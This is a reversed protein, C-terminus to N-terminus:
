VSGSMKEIFEASGIPLCKASNERILKFAQETAADELLERYAHMREDAGDGLATYLEHAQILDNREGLANARCSSWIYDIPSGVMGARVPNLDIYRYCELCYRESDVVSCKFRGEWLTGTRKYRRNLYHVYRVGLSQMM